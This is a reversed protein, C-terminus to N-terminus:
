SRRTRSQQASRWSTTKSSCRAAVSYGDRRDPSRGGTQAGQQMELLLDTGGGIIRANGDHARLRELAEEVTEPYYYHQWLTM